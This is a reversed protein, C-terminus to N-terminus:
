VYTPVRPDLDADPDTDFHWPDVVSSLVKELARIERESRSKRVCIQVNGECKVDNLTGLEQRAEGRPDSSSVYLAEAQRGCLGPLSSVFFILEKM